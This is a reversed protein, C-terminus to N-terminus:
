ENSFNKSHYILAASYDTLHHEEATKEIEEMTSLGLISNSDEFCKSIQNEWDEMDSAMIVKKCLDNVTENQTKSLRKIKYHKRAQKKGFTELKESAHIVNTINKASIESRAIEQPIGTTGSPRGPTRPVTQETKEPEGLDDDLDMMPAGGVM